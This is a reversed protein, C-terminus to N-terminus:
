VNQLLFSLSSVSMNSSIGPISEFYSFVLLSTGPALDTRLWIASYWRLLGSLSNLAFLYFLKSSRYPLFLLYYLGLSLDAGGM